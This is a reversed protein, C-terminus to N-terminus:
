AYRSRQVCSSRNGYADVATPTRIILECYGAACSAATADDRYSLSYGGCNETVVPTGTNAPIPEVACSISM